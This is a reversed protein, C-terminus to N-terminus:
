KKSATEIIDLGDKKWGKFGVRYYYVKTYGWKIARKSAQSGMMCNVGRCHIVVEDNPGAIEGLTQKSLGGTLPLSIAGDIHADKYMNAPRVDVFPVKKQWLTLAEETTITVAGKVSLPAIGDKKTSKSVAFSDTPLALVFALLFVHPILRLLHM